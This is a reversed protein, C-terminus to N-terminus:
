KEDDILENICLKLENNMEKKVKLIDELMNLKEYMKMLEVIKEMKETTEKIRQNEEPTTFLQNLLKTKEVMKEAKKFIEDCHHDIGNQRVMLCKKSKKHEEMVNKSIIKGCIECKLKQKAYAIMKDRHEQYYKKRYELTAPSAYKIKGNRYDITGQKVEVCYFKEEQGESM